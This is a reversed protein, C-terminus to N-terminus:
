AALIIGPARTLLEDFPAFDLRVFFSALRPDFQSGASRAIEALVKSRPMGDRYSRNSSMADFTDALALVRAIQPIEQGALQHPYGHGDWREHHSLVGPNIAALAEIDKLIGFGTEPHKKIQAFEDDTLRGPKRLVAEPVGIKGIDHVLGAINYTETDAPTMGLSGAMQSALLGVRESHGRTYPDKADVAATLAKLTGMFMARQGAFRSVNEHFLGLFGAAAALPQTENSSIDPDPGSKNGTVIVAIKRNEHRVEQVMLESGTLEALRCDDPRRVVPADSEALLAAMQERLALEPVPSRGSLIFRDSLDPVVPKGGLFQVALWPFPLTERLDDCIDRMVGAPDQTRHLIRAMRFTLNMEEFSQSLRVSFESCSKDLDDNRSLDRFYHSVVKVFHATGPGFAPEDTVVAVASGNAEAFAIVARGGADDAVAPRLTRRARDAADTMVRTLVADIGAIAIAAPSAADFWFCSGHLDRVRDEFEKKTAQKM